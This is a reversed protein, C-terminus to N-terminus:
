GAVILDSDPKLVAILRPEFQGQVNPNLTIRRVLLFGAALGAAFGLIAPLDGLPDGLLAGLVALGLPTLYLLLSGRLIVSEPLEIEVEDNLRCDSVSVMASALVRVLGTASSSSRALVGHGCGSRAACRGCASTRVTEVWVADEELAVVRGTERLV